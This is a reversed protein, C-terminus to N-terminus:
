KTDRRRYIKGHFVDEWLVDIAFMIMGVVLCIDAINFTPFDYGFIIFDIFDIVEQFLLRDIFNGIGGAIILVVAISYFKKEKFDVDKTLFYFFGFAVITIVYFVGMNGSLIGWAGGDNYHLSFRFFGKIVVISDTIRPNESVLLLNQFFMKTLQDLAVLFTTILGIIYYKKQM